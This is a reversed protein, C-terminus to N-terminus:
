ISEPHQCLVNVPISDIELLKALTVRHFGDVWHYQGSRDIAVLPELKHFYRYKTNRIDISPVIHTDSRNPRYGSRRISEYLEDIFECRIARFSEVSEYNNFSGFQEIQGKAYQFRVTNEWEDGDVFRQYLGRYITHEEFPAINSEGDWDGTNVQCLGDEIRLRHENDITEVITDITGPDVAVLVFPPVISGYTIRNCVYNRYTRCTFSLERRFNASGISDVDVM